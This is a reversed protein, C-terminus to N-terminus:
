SNYGEKIISNRATSVSQRVDDHVESVVKYKNKVVNSFKVLEDYDNMAMIYRDDVRARREADANSKAIENDVLDIKIRDMIVETERKAREIDSRLQGDMDGLTSQIVSLEKKLRDYENILSMDGAYGAYEKILRNAEGIVELGRKRKEYPMKSQLRFDVAVKARSAIDMYAASEKMDSHNEAIMEAMQIIMEMQRETFVIM